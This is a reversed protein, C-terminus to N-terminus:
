EAEDDATFTGSALEQGDSAVFVVKVSVDQNTVLTRLMQAEYTMTSGMTDVASQMQEAMEDSYPLDKMTATVIMCNGEASVSMDYTNNSLDEFTEELQDAIDPDSFAEEINQYFGEEETDEASTTDKKDKSTDAKTETKADKQPKSVRPVAVLM